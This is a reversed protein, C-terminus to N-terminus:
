LFFIRCFRCYDTYCEKNINRYKYLFNRNEILQYKYLFFFVCFWLDIDGFFKLCLIILRLARLDDCNTLLIGWFWPKRILLELVMLRITRIVVGCIVSFRITFLKKLPDFKWPLLSLKSDNIRGAPDESEIM